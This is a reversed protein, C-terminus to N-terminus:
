RSAVARVLAWTSSALCVTSWSTFFTSASVLRMAATMSLWTSFRLLVVWLPGPVNQVLRSPLLPILRISAGPPGVPGLGVGAGVPFHTEQDEPNDHGTPM